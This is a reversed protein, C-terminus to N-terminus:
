RCRIWSWAQELLQLARNRSDWSCWRTPTATHIQTLNPNLELAREFSKTANEWDREYTYTIGMAVHAEALLPDLELAKLAAPRM